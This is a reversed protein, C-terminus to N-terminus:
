NWTDPFGSIPQHWVPPFCHQLTFLFRCHMEFRFIREKYHMVPWQLSLCVLLREVYRWHLPLETLVSFWKLHVFYWNMHAWLLGKQYYDLDKKQSLAKPVSLHPFLWSLHFCVSSRGFAWLYMPSLEYLERGQIWNSKIVIKSSHFGSQIFNYKEDSDVIWRIFDFIWFKIIRCFPKWFYWGSFQLEHICDM